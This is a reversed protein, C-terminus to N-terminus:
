FGGYYVSDLQLQYERNASYKWVPADDTIEPNDWQMFGEDHLLEVNPLFHQVLDDAEPTDAYVFVWQKEAISGYGYLSALIRLTDNKYKYLDEIYEELSYFQKPKWIPTFPSGSISINSIMGSTEFNITYFFLSDDTNCKRSDKYADLIEFLPSDAVAVGSGETRRWVCSICGIIFFPIIIHLQNRM